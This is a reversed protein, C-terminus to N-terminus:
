KGRAKLVKLFETVAKAFSLWMNEIEDFVPETNLPPEDIDVRGDHAAKSRALVSRVQAVSVLSRNLNDGAYYSQGANIQGHAGKMDYPVPFSAWEKAMNIMFGDDNLEGRIWKGSGRRLLLRYAQLDQYDPSFIDKAQLKYIVALDLLTARMFQYRGCASSGHGGQTKKKGWIKQKNLIWAVQQESLKWTYNKQAHGFLVNYSEQGKIGTETDGIFDLLSQAYKPIQPNM